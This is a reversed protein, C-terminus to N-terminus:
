RTQVQRLKFTCFRRCFADYDQGSILDPAFCRLAPWLESPHGNPTPTGSLLIGRTCRALLGDGACRPGYLLRTRQAGPSKLAHSEDAIGLDFRAAAVVERARRNAVLYDYSSIVFTPQPPLVAAGTVLDRLLVARARPWWTAVEARWVATAIAPSLVLFTSTRAPGRRACAIAIATKGTGPPAALLTAGAELAAVATEQYPYLAPM